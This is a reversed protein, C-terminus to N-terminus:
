RPTWQWAYWVILVTVAIELAGFLLYYAWTEGVLNLLNVLTLLVGLVLNSWRSVSGTLVLTLFVMLSPVIVVVAAAVLTAQSVEVPGMRGDAIEEIQGPRYLSLVDAYVYLLVLVAWLASLRARPSM